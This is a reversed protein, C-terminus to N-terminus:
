SDDTFQIPSVNPKLKKRTSNIGVTLVQLKRLWKEEYLTTESTCTNHDTLPRKLYYKM